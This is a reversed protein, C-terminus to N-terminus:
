ARDSRPAPRESRSTVSRRSPRSPKAVAMLRPWKELILRIRERSSDLPRVMCASEDARAGEVPGVGGYPGAEAGAAPHHSPDLLHRGIVSTVDASPRGASSRTAEYPALLEEILAEKELLFEVDSLSRAKEVLALIRHLEDDRDPILVRGRFRREVEALVRRAIREDYLEFQERPVARLRELVVLAKGDQAQGIRLAGKPTIVCPIYQELAYLQHSELTGEIEQALRMVERGYAGVLRKNAGKTAFFTDKLEDSVTLGAMLTARIRKLIVEMEVTDAQAELAQRTSQADQAKELILLMQEPALDLGNILNLLQIERQLDAEDAPPAQASVPAPQCGLSSLLLLGIWATAFWRRM